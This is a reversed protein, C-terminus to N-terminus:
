DAIFLNLLLQPNPHGNKIKEDITVLKAYSDKLQNVSYRGAMAMTKQAVYPHIGFNSAIQKANARSSEMASKLQLLIRFQRAMMTLIYIESAGNGVSESLLELARKTDKGAISDTLAFINDEFTGKVHKNVDDVTIVKRNKLNVLKHLENSMKWLNSGVRKSLERTANEEISGGLRKVYDQIWRELNREKLERFEFVYPQKKLIEFLQKASNKSKGSIKEEVFLIVNNYDETKAFTKIFDLMKELTDSDGFALLRDIVIMKKESLFGQTMIEMRLRDFDLSEGSLRIVNLGVMDRKKRFQDILEKTKERVRYSDPGHVFLIM